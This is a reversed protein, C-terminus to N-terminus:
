KTQTQENKIYKNKIFLTGGIGVRASVCKGKEVRKREGGAFDNSALSEVNDFGHRWGLMTRTTANMAGLTFGNSGRLGFKTFTADTKSSRSTLAAAEGQETFRDTHLNVYAIHVLPEFTM